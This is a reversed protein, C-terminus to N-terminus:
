DIYPLLVTFVTGWEKSSVRIMGGIEHIIKQCVPLGLGTGNEKTTFFPDFIKDLAYAPIGPGTDQVDVALKQEAEELRIRVTLMGGEGMAEIANKCLNLFVQKLLESDAVVLPFLSRETVFHVEMNHLLAENEVIPLMENWVDTVQLPRLKINRPKSLLLFESVLSNIRNIERLMIETYGQEKVHGKEKLAYKIVQLFGKISTLPNRIEHATGAAIQGITALRDNRQIQEELLRLNTMDKLVMYAGLIRGTEDWLTHADVLLHVQKDGITWTAAYNRTPIGTLAKELVNQEEAPSVHNMLKDFPQHVLKARQVGFLDCAARNIETLNGHNDVLVIGLHIDSILHDAFRQLLHPWIQRTIRNFFLLHYRRQGDWGRVMQVDTSYYSGDRAIVSGLVQQYWACSSDARHIFDVAEKSITVFQTFPKGEVEERDRRISHLLVPNVAVVNGRDDVVMVAQPMQELWAVLQRLEMDLHFGIPM